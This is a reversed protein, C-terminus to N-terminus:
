SRDEDEKEKVSGEDTDEPHDEKKIDFLEYVDGAFLWRMYTYMNKDVLELNQKRVVKQRLEIKLNAIWENIEDIEHVNTHMRNFCSVMTEAMLEKNAEDIRYPLDLLEDEDMSIKENISDVLTKREDMNSDEDNEEETEHMNSVISDMAEQKQNRLEDLETNIAGQRKLLEDVKQELNSIASTKDGELFLQHWNHDLALIPVKKDALAELAMEKTLINAM